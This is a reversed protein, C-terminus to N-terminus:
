SGYNCHIYIKSVSQFGLEMLSGAEVEREGVEELLVQKFNKLKDELDPRRELLRRFLFGDVESEEDDTSM